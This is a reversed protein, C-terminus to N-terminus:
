GRQTIARLAHPIFSREIVRRMILVQEFVIKWASILTCFFAAVLTVAKRSTLPQNFNPELGGYVM